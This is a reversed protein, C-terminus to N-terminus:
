VFLINVKYSYATSRFWAQIKDFDINNRKIREPQMEKHTQSDNSISTIENLCDSIEACRHMTKTWVRLVNDTMGKGIIGSHTLLYTLLNM